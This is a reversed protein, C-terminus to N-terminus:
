RTRSTRLRISWGVPKINLRTVYCLFLVISTKGVNAHGLIIDFSGPKFRFYEDIEPIGLKLGEKIRGERVDNLKSLVSNYDILM